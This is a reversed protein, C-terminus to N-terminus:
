FRQKRPFIHRGLTFGVAIGTGLGLWWDYALGLFM